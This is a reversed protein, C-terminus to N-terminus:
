DFTARMKLDLQVSSVEQTTQRLFLVIDLSVREQEFFEKSDSLSPILAITNGPEAPTPDRYAIEIFNTPDNDPYARVSIRDIFRLDVDGFQGSLAGEITIIKAIDAPTKGSQDLTGEYRTQFNEIYFHHVDFVGIGAPIDFTHRYVLDVGPGPGEERCGALLMSCLLLSLLLSQKM